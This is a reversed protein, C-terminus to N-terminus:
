KSLARQLATALIPRFLALEPAALHNDDAFLSHGNIIYDCRGSRCQVTDPRVFVIDNRKEFYTIIKSYKKRFDQISTYLPRTLPRGFAIDRSTISAVDWDPTALPGILVVKKGASKLRQITRNLGALMREDIGHSIGTKEPNKIFEYWTTALVVVRAKKIKTVADINRDAVAKCEPSINIGYTPLCSNAPVLLGTLSMNHIIDRIAPAYMQAHSNGLLVVDADEPDRSPLGLSCAAAQKFYMYDSVACRYNTGVSANIQAAAANLRGPFGSRAIITGAAAAAVIVGALVWCRVTRIPVTKARFPREIYRWSLTALVLMAVFAAVKEPPTLARVLYYQSFVIIPWHWLYLSYSILGIFVLGKWSLIRRVPNSEHAGSYILLATGVVVFLPDPTFHPLQWGTTIGLIVLGAGIVGWLTNKKQPFQVNPPLLALLAGAGLEWARTPLLYFAPISAGLRLAFMNVIFSVLCLGAISTSTWKKSKRALFFLLLPFILYFQEEVGLSWIHLLPKEQAIRSFYNTDRWFYVNAVFGLTAFLSRAFGILDIPLLLIISVATTAFVVTLLAPMIRRIRRNYFRIVSFEGASIERWIISTILYGSIVFFIDVGLYGGPLINQALHYIIVSLVAIARLGDVDPRYAM